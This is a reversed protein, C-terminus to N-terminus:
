NDLWKFFRMAPYIALIGVFLGIFNLNVPLFMVAFGIGFFIPVGIAIISILFARAIEGEPHGTPVIPFIKKWIQRIKISM